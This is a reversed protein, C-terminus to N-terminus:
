ACKAELKAMRTCISDVLEEVANAMPEDDAIDRLGFRDAVHVMEHAVLGPTWGRLPLTVRLRKSVGARTDALFGHVQGRERRAKGGRFARDVDAVTPLVRVRVCICRRTIQFVRVARTM